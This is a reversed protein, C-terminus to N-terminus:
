AAKSYDLASHDAYYECLPLTDAIAQLTALGAGTTLSAPCDSANAVRRLPTRTQQGVTKKLHWRLRQAVPINAEVQAAALKGAAIDRHALPIRKILMCQELTAGAKALNVWTARLGTPLSALPPIPRPLNPM